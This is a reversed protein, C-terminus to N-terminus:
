VLEPLNGLQPAVGHEAPMTEILAVREKSDNVFATQVQLGGPHGLRVIRRAAHLGKSGIALLPEVCTVFHRDINQLIGFLQRDPREQGDSRRAELQGETKRDHQAALRERRWTIRWSSM